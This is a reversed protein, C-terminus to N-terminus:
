NVLLEPMKNFILVLSEMVEYQGGRGISAMFNHIEDYQYDEDPHETKWEKYAKIIENM